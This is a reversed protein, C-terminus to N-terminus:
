GYSIGPDSPKRTQRIRGIAALADAISSAEWINLGANKLSSFNWFRDNLTSLECGINWDPICLWGGCNHRGTLVHFRHGRANVEAEIMSLQNPWLLQVTGNWTFLEKKETCQSEYSIAPFPYQVSM